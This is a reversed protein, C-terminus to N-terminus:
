PRELWHSIDIEAGASVCACIPSSSGSKRFGGYALFRVLDACAQSFRGGAGEMTTVFDNFKDFETLKLKKPKVSARKISLAPNDYRAGSEMGIALM